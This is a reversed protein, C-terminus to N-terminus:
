APALARVLVVKADGPGYFDTLTAEIAYGAGLYFRRTPEYQARSSTEIYVRTGGQARILAESAELLRRGLGQRQASPHVAIWYLDFSSLTCAIPGFCAYGLLTGARELLVFEYGSAAGIRLRESVLEEAVRREEETFFGTATVLGGVARVDGPGVELRWRCGPPAAPLASEAATAASAQVNM